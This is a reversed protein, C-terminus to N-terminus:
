YLKLEQGLLPWESQGVGGAYGGEFFDLLSVCVVGLKM